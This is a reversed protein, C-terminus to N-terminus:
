HQFRYALATMSRIYRHLVAPSPSRTKTVACYLRASKAMYGARGEAGVSGGVRFGAFVRSPIRAQLRRM